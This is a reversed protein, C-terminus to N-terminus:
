CVRERCSARGIQSVRGAANYTYTTTNNLADKATLLNGNKDWTNTESVISRVASTYTPRYTETKTLLRGLRDYDYATYNLSMYSSPTAWDAGGAPPAVIHEPEDQLLARPSYEKALRGQYDYEMATAAGVADTVRTLFGRANYAYYTYSGKEDKRSTVNGMVDYGTTKTVATSANNENLVTRAETTERGLLDYAYTVTEGNAYTKKTVNGDLDYAYGSAIGYLTTNDPRGDIDANEMYATSSTAKGMYNYAYDTRRSRGAAQLRTEQSVRGDNDYLYSNKGTGNITIEQVTGDANYAYAKTAAQGTPAAGKAMPTIYSSELTVRGAKDHQWAAVSYLSGSHPSQQKTRRNLPDYDYYTANGMADSSSALLGNALYTNTLIGGDPHETKLLRHAFDYTRTTDGHVGSAFYAWTTERVTGATQRPYTHSELPTAAGGEMCSKSTPRDLKDYAYKYAINIPLAEWTRNGYIDYQYTAAQNLADTETLALGAV